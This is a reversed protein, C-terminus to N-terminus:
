RLYDDLQIEFEKELFAITRPQRDLRELTRRQTSAQMQNGNQEHAPDVTRIWNVTAVYECLEDSEADSSMNQCALDLTLLPKGGITVERIPKAPSTLQGIGVFGRGKTYAAVVDNQQFGLMADRWRAGHGASIFGFKVYDAWLRNPGEGVNYYYLGSSYDFGSLHLHM